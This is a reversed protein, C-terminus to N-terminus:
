ASSVTFWSWCFAWRAERNCREQKAPPPYITHPDLHKLMGEITLESLCGMDVEDIYNNKIQNWVQIIKQLSSDAVVNQAELSTNIVIVLFLFFVKLIRM